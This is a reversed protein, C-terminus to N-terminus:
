KRKLHIKRWEDMPVQEGNEVTGRVCLVFGDDTWEYEGVYYSTPTQLWLPLRVTFGLFKRENAEDPAYIAFKRLAPDLRILYADPEDSVEFRSGTVTLDAAGEKVNPNTATEIRVFAWQGQMRRLDEPMLLWPLLWILAVVIVFFVAAATFFRRWRRPRKDTLTPQM